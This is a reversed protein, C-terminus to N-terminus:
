KEKQVGRYQFVSIYSAKGDESVNLAQTMLQQPSVSEVAADFIAICDQRFKKQEAQNQKDVASM